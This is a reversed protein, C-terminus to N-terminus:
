LRFRLILWDDMLPDVVHLREDRREVLGQDVLDRLAARASGTSLGLVDAATGFISGGGSVVRMVKQQAPSLVGFLRESAGDVERRVRDLARAWTETDATFGESTAQWLADALQMMRQPHGSSVRILHDLVDEGVDRGSSEFGAVVQERVASDTLPGIQVLDAQSFFPQARDSFLMLMTSPESGAFVIGLDQYHHQLHTRLIGAARPVRAIGSFEDMILVLPRRQATEVVLQVLARLLLGADPRDRRAKSMEFGIGGLRLSFGDAVDRVIAGLRGRVAALGDDFSAVVDELSAAEYLDIWVTDTGAEALDSSVRRLVSTKGYRRPGLLATVRRSTIRAELDRVLDDRGAVQTPELPGWHPFPSSEFM